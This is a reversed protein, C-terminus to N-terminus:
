NNKLLAVAQEAEKIDKELEDSYGISKEKAAKLYILAEEHKGSKHLALGKMWLLFQRDPETKLGKEALALGEKINIGSRILIWSLNSIRSLNEPDLNYAKRYHKEATITDKASIYMFAIAYEEISEPSNEREIISRIESISKEVAITDGLMISSSGRYVILWDNGPNIQLGKESIRLAEEPKDALL